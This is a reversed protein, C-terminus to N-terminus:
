QQYLVKRSDNTFKKLARSDPTQAKFGTKAPFFIKRSM